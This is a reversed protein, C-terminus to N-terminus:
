VSWPTKSTPGSPTRILSVYPTLASSRASRSPMVDGQGPREAPHSCGASVLPRRRKPASRATATATARAAPGDPRLPAHQRRGGRRDPGHHFRRRRLRPVGRRGLRRGVAAFAQHEPDARGPRLLVREHEGRGRGHPGSGRRRRQRHHRSRRPRRGPRLHTREPLNAKRAIMYEVLIRRVVM